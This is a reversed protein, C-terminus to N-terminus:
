AAMESGAGDPKRGEGGRSLMRGYLETYAHVTRDLSYTRARNAAARQLHRRALGDACLNELASELLEPGGPVHLAAGDWLERLTAIDSLVLACGARAAELIGLGFPEYHAPAAYIAARRMWDQLETHGIEGLCRINPAADARDPVGAGAICVPWSLRPAIEILAALNKASDWIRGSALIFPEKAVAPPAPFDVGNAIVCGSSRPRYIREVCGRFAQTPAVWTGARDLGARVAQAYALWRQETVPERRVAEWWSMVCSHAVVISPCQWPVSAERYGNIHVLDPRLRDALELLAAQARASDRGEPDRWELDLDTVILEISAPLANADQRRVGDPKPGLTVITIRYGAEALRRGLALAYVWVGGVADATMMIHLPATM